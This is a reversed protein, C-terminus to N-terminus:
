EADLELVVEEAEQANAGVAMAVPVADGMLESVLQAHRARQQQWAAHTAREGECEAEFADREAAMRARHASYEADMESWADQMEELEDKKKKAEIKLAEIESEARAVQDKVDREAREVRGRKEAELLADLAQWRKFSVLRLDSLSVCRGSGRETYIHQIDSKGTHLSCLAMWEGDLKVWDEFCKQRYQEIRAGSLTRIAEKQFVFENDDVEHGVDAVRIVIPWDDGQRAALEFERASKAIWVHAAANAWQPLEEEM